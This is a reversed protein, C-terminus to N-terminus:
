TEAERLWRLDAQGPIRIWYTQSPPAFVDKSLETSRALEEQGVHPSRPKSGQSHAASYSFHIGSGQTQGRAGEAHGRRGEWLGKQEEEWSCRERGSIVDGALQPLGAPFVRPEQCWGCPCSSRCAPVWWSENQKLWCKSQMSALVSPM